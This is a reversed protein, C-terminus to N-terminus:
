EIDASSGGLREFLSATTKRRTELYHSVMSQSDRSERVVERLERTIGLLASLDRSRQMALLVPPRRQKRLIRHTASSYAELERIIRPSIHGRRSLDDVEQALGALQRNLLRSWVRWRNFVLWVVIPLGILLMVLALLAQALDGM